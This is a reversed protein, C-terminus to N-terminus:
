FLHRSKLEAIKAETETVTPPLPNTNELIAKANDKLSELTPVFGADYQQVAAFMANLTPTTIEEKSAPNKEKRVVFRVLDDEVGDKYASSNEQSWYEAAGKRALEEPLVSYALAAAWKAHTEDKPVDPTPTTIIEELKQLVSKSVMEKHISDLHTQLAGQIMTAIQNASHLKKESDSQDISGAFAIAVFLGLRNIKAHKSLETIADLAKKREPETTANSFNDRHTKLEKDITKQMQSIISEAATIRRLAKDQEISNSVQACYLKMAVKACSSYDNQIKQTITSPTISSANSPAKSNPAIAPSTPADPWVINALAILKKASEEVALDSAMLAKLDKTTIGGSGDTEYIWVIRNDIDIQVQKDQDAVLGKLACFAEEIRQMLAADVTADKRFGGGLDKYISVREKRRNIDITIEEGGSDSASLSVSDDDSSSSSSSSDSSSASSVSSTQSKPVPDKGKAPDPLLDGEVEEFLGGGVPWTPSEDFYSSNNFIHNYKGSGGVHGTM